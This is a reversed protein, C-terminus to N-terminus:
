TCGRHDKVTLTDAVSMPYAMGQFARLFTFVRAGVRVGNTKCAVANICVFVSRLM